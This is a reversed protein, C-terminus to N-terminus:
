RLIPSSRSAKSCTVVTEAVEDEALCPLPQHQHCSARACEFCSKKRNAVLYSCRCAHGRHLPRAQWNGVNRLHKFFIVRGYKELAIARRGASPTPPTSRAQFEREIRSRGCTPTKTQLIFLPRDIGESFSEPAGAQESGIVLGAM